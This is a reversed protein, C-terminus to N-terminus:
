YNVNNYKSQIQKDSPRNVWSVARNYIDLAMAAIFLIGLM